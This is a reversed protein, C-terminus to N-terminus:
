DLRGKLPGVNPAYKQYAPCLFDENLRYTVSLGLTGIWDKNILASGPPSVCYDIKDSFTKRMAWEVGVTIRKFPVWKVGVGMQLYGVTAADNDPLVTSLNKDSTLAALGVGGLLYPSVRNHEWLDFVNLPLFGVEGSVEVLFMPRHFLWPKGHNTAPLDTRSLDGELQGYAVQGRIAYFENLNYRYMVGAYYSLNRFFSYNDGLDGMYFTAGGVIGVDHLEPQNCDNQAIVTPSVLLVAICFLTKRIIRNM